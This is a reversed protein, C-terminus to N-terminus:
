DETAAPLKFSFTTGVGEESEYWIRGGMAEVEAKCLYLALGYGYERIVQPQRARQFPQFVRDAERPRIGCGEDTIDFEIHRGQTASSVRLKVPSPAESYMFANRLIDRLIFTLYSKPAKVKLKEDIDLVLRDRYADSSITPDVLAEESLEEIFDELFDALPITTMRQEIIGALQGTRIIELRHLLDILLQLHYMQSSIVDVMGMAKKGLNEVTTNKPPNNLLKRIFDAHGSTSTIASRAEARFTGMLDLLAHWDPREISILTFAKNDENKMSSAWCPTNIGSLLMHFRVPTGQHLAKARIESATPQEGRNADILMAFASWGESRMLVLNPGLIQQAVPNDLILQDRSDFVLLGTGMNQVVTQFNLTALADSKAM